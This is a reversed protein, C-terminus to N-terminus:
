MASYCAGTIIGYSAGVRGWKTGVYCCGNGHAYQGAPCSSRLAAILMPSEIIDDYLDIIDQENLDNINENEM